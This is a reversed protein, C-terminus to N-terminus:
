GAGPYTFEGDATGNDFTFTYATAQYEPPAVSFPRLVENLAAVAEPSPVYPAGNARPDDFGVVRGLNDIKVQAGLTEPLVGGHTDAYNFVMVQVIESMM